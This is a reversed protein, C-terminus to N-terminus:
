KRAPQFREWFSKAYFGFVGATDQPDYAMANVLSLLIHILKSNDQYFEEIEEDTASAGPATAPSAQRHALRKHRLTRLAKLVNNRPGGEMYKAILEIARDAKGALDERMYELVDSFGLRDARDQALVDIVNSNRLQHRILEMRVGEKNTDWLRVLALVMERRLAMRAVLFAQTAYSNGLRTHLDQDYAAPKWIEHFIVALDFEEQAATVMRQLEVITRDSLEM